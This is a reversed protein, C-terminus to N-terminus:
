NWFEPQNPREVPAYINIISTKTNDPQTLTLLVTRGPILAKVSIQHPTILAKNIIFAVGVSTRPNDPDSSYHLDFSKHFCRYIDSAHEEDLHMEQLALIAIKNTRITRNITSWKKTLNM